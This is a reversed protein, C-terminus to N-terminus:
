SYDAAAYCNGALSCGVASCSDNKVPPTESDEVEVFEYTINFGFVDLLDDLVRLQNGELRDLELEVVLYNTKTWLWQGSVVNNENVSYLLRGDLQLPSDPEYYGFEKFTLGASVYLQTLYLVIAVGQPRASSDIIWRCSAPVAFPGPFNPTHFYGRDETLTGGCPSDEAGSTTVVLLLLVGALTAM